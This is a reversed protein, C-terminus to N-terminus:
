RGTGESDSYCAYYIEWRRYIDAHTCTSKLSINTRCIHNQSTEIFPCHINEFRHSTTLSEETLFQQMQIVVYCSDSHIWLFKRLSELLAATCQTGWAVESCNVNCSCLIPTNFITDTSESLFWEHEQTHVNLVSRDLLVTQTSVCGYNCCRICDTRGVDCKVQM